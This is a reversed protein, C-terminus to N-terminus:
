LWQGDGEREKALCATGRGALASLRPWHGAGVCRHHGLGRAYATSTATAASAATAVSVPALGIIVIAALIVRQTLRM